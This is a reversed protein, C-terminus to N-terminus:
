LPIETVTLISLSAGFASRSARCWLTVLVEGTPWVRLLITGTLISIDQVRPDTAHFRGGDCRIGPAPLPVFCQFDCQDSVVVFLDGRVAGDRNRDAQGGFAQGGIELAAPNM